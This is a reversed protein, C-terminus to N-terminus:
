SADRDPRIDRNDNSADSVDLFWSTDLERKRSELKDYLIKLKSVHSNQKNQKCYYALQAINSQFASIESDSIVSISNCSYYDKETM